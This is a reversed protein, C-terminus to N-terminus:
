PMKMAAMPATGKETKFAPRGGAKASRPFFEKYDARSHSLLGQNGAVYIKKNQRGYIM